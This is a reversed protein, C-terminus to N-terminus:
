AATKLPLVEYGNGGQVPVLRYRGHLAPLDQSIYFARQGVNAAALSLLFKDDVTWSNVLKVDPRVGEVQQLYQYGALDLFPGYVIADPKVQGLFREADNKPRHEGRLTVLPANIALAALPLLLMAASALSLAATGPVFVDIAWSMGIA